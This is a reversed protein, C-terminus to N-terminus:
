WGGDCRREILPVLSGDKRAWSGVAWASRGKPEVAVGFLANDVVHQGQKSESPVTTWNSGNWREALTAGPDASEYYGVSVLRGPGSVAVDSLQAALDPSRVISWAQGDWREVVPKREIGVDSSWGVGWASDSSVATVAELENDHTGISPSDVVKWRRGNWMEVLTRFRQQADDYFKGTAWADSLSIGSVGLLLNYTSSPDVSPVITWARGDWHEILTSFVSFDAPYAIGVAWVDNSATADVSYLVGAEHPPRPSSVVAWKSGDWHETLTRRSTGGVAWVDKPSLASVGGLGNSSQDPNPSSVVRWRDGDFHEIVTAAALGTSPYATGVAWSEGNRLVAVDSLGSNGYPDPSPVICWGRQGSPHSAQSAHSPAAGGLSLMTLLGVAVGVGPM